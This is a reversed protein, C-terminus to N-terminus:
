HYTTLAETTITVLSIDIKSDKTKKKKKKKMTKIKERMKNMTNKNRKSTYSGSNKLYPLNMKCKMKFILHTQLFSIMDKAKITSHIKVMWVLHM